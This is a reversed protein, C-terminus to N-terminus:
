ISGGRFLLAKDILLLACDAYSSLFITASDTPFFRSSPTKDLINVLVTPAIPKIAM